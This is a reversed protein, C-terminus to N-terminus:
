DGKGPFKHHQYSIDGRLSRVIYRMAYQLLAIWQVGTTDPQNDSVQLCLFQYPLLLSTWRGLFLGGSKRHYTGNKDSLCRIGDENVASMLSRM